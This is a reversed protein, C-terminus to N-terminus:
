QILAITHQCTENNVIGKATANNMGGFGNQARYEMYIVHQGNEDRPTIRTKVHEFSKPDRMRSKIESMFEPHAGSWVDLCHEGLRKDESTFPDGDYSVCTKLILGFFVLFIITGCWLQLKSHAPSFAGCESCRNDDKGVLGGCNRCLKPKQDVNEVSM